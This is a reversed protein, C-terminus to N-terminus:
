SIQVPVTVTDHNRRFSQEKLFGFKHFHLLMTPGM